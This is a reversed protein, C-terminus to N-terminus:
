RSREECARRDRKEDVDRKVHRERKEDVDRKAHRERQERVRQEDKKRETRLSSLLSCEDLQSDRYVRGQSARLALTRPDQGM